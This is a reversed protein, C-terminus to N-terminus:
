EALFKEIEAKLGAKFKEPNTRANAFAFQTLDNVSEQGDDHRNVLLSSWTVEYRDALEGNDTIDVIRLVLTSDALQAAFESEIVEGIISPDTCSKEIDVTLTNRDIDPLNRINKIHINGVPELWVTQWIGSVPTYWIGKPKTVQKGRSQFGKDTPDLVRVVITNKGNTNVAATIDFFFPTFGGKHTGVKINNVWVDAQWDVAGFHLIINQNKWQSPIKFDRRYWLAKDKGLRKEVGSLQSKVAFPVLITGDFETPRPQASETIAYEWHGNLNSWKDREMM